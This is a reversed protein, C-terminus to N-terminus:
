AETSLRPFLPDGKVVPQGGAYGGWAAAQPLRQDAVQGASVGAPDIELM